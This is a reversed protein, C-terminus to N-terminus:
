LISKDALPTIQHRRFPASESGCHRCGHLCPCYARVTYAKFPSEKAWGFLLRLADAFVHSRPGAASTKDRMRWHLSSASRRGTMQARGHKDAADAVAATLVSLLVSWVRDMSGARRLQWAARRPRDGIARGDMLRWLHGSTRRCVADRNIGNKRFVHKRRGNYNGIIYVTDNRLM